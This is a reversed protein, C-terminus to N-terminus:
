GGFGIAVLLPRFSRTRIVIGPGAIIFVSWSLGALDWQEASSSCVPLISPESALSLLRSDTDPFRMLRLQRLYPALM